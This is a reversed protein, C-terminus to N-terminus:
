SDDNPIHLHTVIKDLQKRFYIMDERNNERDRDIQDHLRKCLEPNYKSGGPGRLSSILYLIGEKGGLAIVVAGWPGWVQLATSNNTATEATAAALMWLEIM